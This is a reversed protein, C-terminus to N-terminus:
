YIYSYKNLYSQLNESEAVVMCMLKVPDRGIESTLRINAFRTSPHSVVQSYNTNYSKKKQTKDEPTTNRNKACIAEADYGYVIRIVTGM